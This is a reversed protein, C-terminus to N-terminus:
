WGGRVGLACLVITSYTQHLRACVQLYTKCLRRDWDDSIHGGYMIEGFIYRLDEWPVTQSSPDLYNFLVSVSITLDGLNFPYPVNWGQPGFKRRELIVGHFFCLAFLISKFENQRPSMELTEQDFCAFARRMNAKLGRPPENTVQRQDRLPPRINLPMLGLSAFCFVPVLLACAVLCFFDLHGSAGNLPANEEDRDRTLRATVAVRILGSSTNSSVQLVAMGYLRSTWERGADGRAFVLSGLGSAFECKMGRLMEYM